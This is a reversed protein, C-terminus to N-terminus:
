FDLNNITFLFVEKKYNLNALQYHDFKAKVFGFIDYYFDIKDEVSADPSMDSVTPLADEFDIKQFNQFIKTIQSDFLQYKGLFDEKFRSFIEDTEALSCKASELESNLFNKEQAAGEKDNLNQQTLYIIQKKSIENDSTL